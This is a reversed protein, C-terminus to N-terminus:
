SEAVFGSAELAGRLWSGFRREAPGPARDASSILWYSMGSGRWDPLPQAIQGRALADVALVEFALFVGAGSMAADFCLAADSFEPGEGLMDESLGTPALWDRWGFMSQTDRIIPVHALDAPTAIRAAWEASCVPTFRHGFLREARVGPYPGRGVRIALDVDGTGPDSLAVASDIRVRIGPHAASFEPLRWILWRAAFIPAASVTLAHDRDRRTLDVARALEAIGASLRALIEAAAPDPTMGGPGRLFLRRGLGAEARAVQQSVAGPTVGLEAAAGGLAGHRAVAEAARLANLPVRSLAQHPTM